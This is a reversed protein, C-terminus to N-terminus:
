SIRMLNWRKKSIKIKLKNKAEVVEEITNQKIKSDIGDIIKEVSKRINERRAKIDEGKARWLALYQPASKTEFGYHKLVIYATTEADIEKAQRAEPPGAPRVKKGDASVEWHLIEHACEHVMVSFLNIGQFADNVRIKGGSAYGGLEEGMEEFDVDIGTEKAWDVLSNFLITIEEMSENPDTKLKPVEFPKKGKMEEWGAIPKTDSVDYVKVASFYVRRSMNDIEEQTRGAADEPSLEINRFMPAIIVIGKDWNVVERGLEMWQKFGKVYTSKPNQVWILMQNGFSYGHFRAAFDLFSKVFESQATEDTMDAVREIMRDVFSLLNKVRENKAEKMAMDVGDKMRELEKEVPTKEVDSVDSVEEIDTKEPEVQIDLDLPSLDIELENLKNRVDDTIKDVPLGWTGQFYRFGMDKLKDKVAFTNGYITFFSKGYKNKRIVTQMGEVAIKVWDLKNSSTTIRM